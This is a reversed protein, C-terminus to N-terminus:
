LVSDYFAGFRSSMNGIRAVQGDIMDFVGAVLIMLGGWGIYSMDSRNGKEAGVIFIIAVVINLMLGLTTVLNPTLGIAIFFRVVPHLLNHLVKQLRDRM